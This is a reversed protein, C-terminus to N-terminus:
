FSKNESQLVNSIPLRKTYLASGSIIAYKFDELLLQAATSDVCLSNKTSKM